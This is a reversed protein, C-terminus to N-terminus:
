CVFRKRQQIEGGSLVQAEMKEKLCYKRIGPEYHIFYEEWDIRNIDFELYNSESKTLAQRMSRVNADSVKWERLGFYSLTSMHRKM